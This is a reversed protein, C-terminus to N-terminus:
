GNARKRALAKRAKYEDLASKRAATRAERADAAAKLSQYVTEEFSAHQDVTIRLEERAERLRALRLEADVTMIPLLCVTGFLHRQTFTM